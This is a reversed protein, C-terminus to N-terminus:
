KETLFMVSDVNSIRATHLVRTMLVEYYVGSVSSDKHSLPLADSRLDSPRLNSEEHPSLIKRQGVSTVLRFFMKRLKLVTTFNTPTQFKIELFKSMDSSVNFFFLSISYCCFFHMSIEVRSYVGELIRQVFANQSVKFHWLIVVLDVLSSFIVLVSQYSM